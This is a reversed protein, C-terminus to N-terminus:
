PKEPFKMGINLVFSNRIIKWVALQVSKCYCQHKAVINLEWCIEPSQVCRIVAIMEFHVLLNRVITKWVWKLTNFRINQQKKYELVSKLLIILNHSREFKNIKSFKIVYMKNRREDNLSVNKLHAFSISVNISDNGFSSLECSNCACLKRRSSISFWSAAM